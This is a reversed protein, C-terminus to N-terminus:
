GRKRFVKKRRGGLGQYSQAAFTMSRRQRSVL